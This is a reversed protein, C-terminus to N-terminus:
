ATGIGIRLVPYGPLPLATVVHRPLTDPEDDAAPLTTVIEVAHGRAALGAAFTSLSRAVGNIDPPYTDTILMLKM